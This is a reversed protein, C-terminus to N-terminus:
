REERRPRRGVYILLLMGLALSVGSGQAADCSCGRAPTDGAGDGPVASPAICAKITKCAGSSCTGGAGCYGKVNTRPAPTKSWGGRCDIEVACVKLAACKKGDKCSADNVCEDPDCFPGGHCTEGRSGAVCNDPPPGVADARAAAPATLLAAIILVLHRM